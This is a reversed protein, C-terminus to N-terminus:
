EKDWLQRAEYARELNEAQWEPCFEGTDLYFWPSAKCAIERRAITKRKFPWFGSETTVTVSAFKVPTPGDFISKTLVFESLTEAKIDSM